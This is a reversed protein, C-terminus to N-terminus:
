RKSREMFKKYRPTSKILEWLIWAQLILRVTSVEHETGMSVYCQLTALIFGIFWLFTGLYICLINKRHAGIGLGVLMFGTVLNMLAIVNPLYFLNFLITIIGLIILFCGGTKIDNPQKGFLTFNNNEKM